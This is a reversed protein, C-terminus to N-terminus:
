GEETMPAPTPVGSDQSEMQQQLTHLVSQSRIILQGTAIILLNWDQATLTAGLRQDADFTRRQQPTFSQDM